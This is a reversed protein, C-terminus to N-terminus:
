GGNGRGVRIVFEGYCCYWQNNLIGSFDPLFEHKFFCSAPKRIYPFKDNLRNFLGIGYAAGNVRSNEGEM